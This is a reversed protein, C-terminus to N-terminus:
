VGFLYFEVTNQYYSLWDHEDYLMDKVLDIKTKVVDSLLIKDIAKNAHTM